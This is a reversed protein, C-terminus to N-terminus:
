AAALSRRRARLAAGLGGFGVLMLSWAAPEPVGGGVSDIKVSVEAYHTEELTDENQTFLNVFAYLDVPPNTYNPATHALGPFAGDTSFGGLNIYNLTFFPGDLYRDTANQQFSALTCDLTCSPLLSYDQRYDQGSSDDGHGVGFTKTVGNLKITATVPNAAGAGYYFDYWVDGTDTTGPKADDYVVHATFAKGVLNAGVGFEGTLDLAETVHGSYVLNHITASAQGALGLSAAAAIAAGLYRNM